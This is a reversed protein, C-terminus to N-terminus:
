PRSLGKDSRTQTYLGVIQWPPKGKGPTM